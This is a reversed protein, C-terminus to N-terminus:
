TAAAGPPPCRRDNIDALSVGLAAAKARDIDLKFEPMDEQGNPRVGVLRKDQAAMGLFQNRAALLADHGLGGRDQLQVDFGSANGLEVGGAARLRLGHADRIQRFPAWRAGPSRVQRGSGPRHARGLAQAERLRHGHEPRQRRLQLRGRHLDRARRGEREDMFHHEVQTSCRSPASTPHRRRAAAGAWVDVGQDEDPLFSTPMRVFLVGLVAVIARWLHRPLARQASCAASRARLGSTSRDFASTSGASSVASRGSGHEGKEVPKLLTACLAPTLVIAVLVSLVMASVITISFQRYIVGTSGGFFAMPVFVASLVLGIGVLAGTIQDM